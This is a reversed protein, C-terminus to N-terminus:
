PKVEAVIEVEANAPLDVGGKEWARVLGLADAEYMADSLPCYAVAVIAEDSLALVARLRELEHRWYDVVAPPLDLSRLAAVQRAARREAMSYRHRISAAPLRHPPIM